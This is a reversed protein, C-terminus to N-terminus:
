TKIGLTRKKERLDKNKLRMLNDNVMSLTIKLDIPENKVM